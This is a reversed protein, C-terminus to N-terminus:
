EQFGKGIIESSDCITIFAHPETQKVFNRLQVAQTRGLVTFIIYKKEHTYAGYGETVTASHNIHTKIFDLIPEPNECVISIYKSLNIDRIAGNVALTKALLGTLSYLGAQINFVLFAAATIAADVVFLTSGTDLGSFKKIIMAPIDTGGSSAGTNFLIASGLSTLLITLVFELFLQDTLPGNLPCVFELVWLLASMLVSAYVTKLGFGKGLFLFGVVLFAMNLVFTVVGPSWPLLASVVVSIGTVGGFCFSNPFKFFYIGVTMILTGFTVLLFQGWKTNHLKKM